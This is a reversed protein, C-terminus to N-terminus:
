DRQGDLEIGDGQLLVFVMVACDAVSQRVIASSGGRERSYAPIGGCRARPICPEETEIDCRIEDPMKRPLEGHDPSAKRAV